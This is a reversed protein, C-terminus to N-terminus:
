GLERAVAAVSATDPLGALRALMHDKVLALLHGFQGADVGLDAALAHLAADEAPSLDGDAYAVMICTALVFERTGADAFDAAGVPTTAYGALLAAFGPGGDGDGYFTRILAVEEATCAGDVHAIRLMASTAAAIQTPTLTLDTLLPFM